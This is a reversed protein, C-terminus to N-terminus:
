DRIEKKLVHRRWAKDGAESLTSEKMQQLWCWQGRTREPGMEWLQPVQCSADSTPSLYSLSLFSSPFSEPEWGSMQSSDPLNQPTQQMKILGLIIFHDLQTKSGWLLLQAVGGLRACRTIYISTSTRRHAGTHEHIHLLWLDVDPTKRLWEKFRELIICIDWSWSGSSLLLEPQFVGWIKISGESV